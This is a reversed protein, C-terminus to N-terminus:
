SLKLYKHRDMAHWMLEIFQMYQSLGNYIMAEQCHTIFIIIFILCCGNQICIIAQFVIM